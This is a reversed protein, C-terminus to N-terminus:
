DSAGREFVDCWVTTEPAIVGDSYSGPVSELVVNALSVPHAQHSLNMVVQVGGVQWSLVESSGTELWRFEGSGLQYKRRLAIAARYFELTSAPDDKQASRSLSRFQEPQPLWSEGAPSFGFAPQDSHWPLPVRCGDRGIRQGHTRHFTPDQRLQDPIDVVEPLGLEEGQYLYCYGPLSLIMATAARARRLGQVNDVQDVQVKGMQQLDGGAVSISLRSAHRMIDHNSLVWGTPAGVAPFVTLGDDIVDKMRSASWPATLMDFNFAQHMYGPRVYRAIRTTPSIWAEACLIREGPYQDLIQRWERYIDHVRDQDFYPGNDGPTAADRSWDPLGAQKILGHAVDIRFGDVGRDLWFRLIDFFQERVWPNDWNLDPQSSDFLHLYWSGDDVQTWAPGGFISEWNNPPESGDVGRGPRFMYRDREPSGPPAALAEQFWRHDSSTHNPVLDIIVKLGRDHAAAILTDFDQLTGFLPDIDTFDSVDYGADKQPSPFFPSLWMGDVGLEVLDDLHSTIGPLDGIGNGTTDAFSRPYVQYLVSDRWWGTDPHHVPTPAPSSV